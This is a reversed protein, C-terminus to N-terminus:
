QKFRSFSIAGVANSLARSKSKDCHSGQL